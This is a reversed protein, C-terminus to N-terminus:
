PFMDSASVGEGIPPPRDPWFYGKLGLYKLTEETCFRGKDYGRKSAKGSRVEIAAAREGGGDHGFLWLERYGLEKLVHLYIAGRGVIHGNAIHNALAARGKPETSPRYHRFQRKGPGISYPHDLLDLGGALLIQSAACHESVTEELKRGTGFCAFDVHDFLAIAWNLTVLHGYRLFDKAFESSPGGAVYLCREM